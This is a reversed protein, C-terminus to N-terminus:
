VRTVTIRFREDDGVAELDLLEGVLDAVADDMGAGTLETSGSQGDERILVPVAVSGILEDKPAPQAGRAANPVMEPQRYFHATGSQSVSYHDADFEDQLISTGNLYSVTFHKM